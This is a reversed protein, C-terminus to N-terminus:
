LTVPTRVVSHAPCIGSLLAATYADTMALLEKALEGESLVFQDRFPAPIDTSDHPLHVIIPSPM